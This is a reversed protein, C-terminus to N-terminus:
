PQGNKGAKSQSLGEEIKSYTNNGNLKISQSQTLNVRFEQESQYHINQNSKKFNTKTESQDIQQIIDGAGASMDTPNDPLLRETLEKNVRKKDELDSM